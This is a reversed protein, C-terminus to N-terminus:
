GLISKKKKIIKGKDWEINKPDIGISQLAESTTGVVFYGKADKGDWADYEDVFDPNLSFKTSVADAVSGNAGEMGDFYADAIMQIANKDERILEMQEWNQEKSLASYAKDLIDLLDKLLQEFWARIEGSAQKVKDAFRRAQTEDTSIGEQAGPQM